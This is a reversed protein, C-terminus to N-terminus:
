LTSNCLKTDYIVETAGRVYDYVQNKNWCIKKSTSLFYRDRTGSLNFAIRITLNRPEKRARLLHLTIVKFCVMIGSQM